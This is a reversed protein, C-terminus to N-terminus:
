ITKGAKRWQIMCLPLAAGTRMCAALIRSKRDTFTCHLLCKRMAPHKLIKRVRGAQSLFGGPGNCENMMCIYMLGIYLVRFDEALMKDLKEKKLERFVLRGLLRYRTFLDNKYSQTLSGERTDYNYWTLHTVLVSSAKMYLSFIFLFDESGIKRESIFKIGTSKLFDHRYIHACSSLIFTHMTSNSIRGGGFAMPLLISIVEEHCYRGEHVCPIFIEELSERIKKYGFKVMDPQEGESSEILDRIEQYSNRDVWDDSDIFSIWKGSAKELGANRASALGGNEKHVVQINEYEGAYRDCIRGSSDTSGDDVLILEMDKCDDCLISDVCREIWDEVNYVPIIISFFFM